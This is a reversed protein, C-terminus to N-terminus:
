LLLQWTRATPWAQLATLPSATASTMLECTKSNGVRCLKKKLRRSSTKGMINAKKTGKSLRSLRPVDITAGAAPFFYKLLKDVQPPPAIVLHHRYRHHPPEPFISSFSLPGHAKMFSRDGNAGRGTLMRRVRTVAAKAGTERKPPVHGVRDTCFTSRLCSLYESVRLMIAPGPADTLMMYQLHGLNSLQCYRFM